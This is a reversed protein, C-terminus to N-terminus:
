AVACGPHPLVGNRGSRRGRGRGHLVDREIGSDGDPGNILEERVFVREHQGPELFVALQNAGLHQIDEAQRDGRIFLEPLKDTDSEVSHAGDPLLRAMASIVRITLRIAGFDIM